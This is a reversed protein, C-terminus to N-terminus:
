QFISNLVPTGGKFDSRCPHRLCISLSCEVRSFWALRSMYGRNLELAVEGYLLNGRIQEKLTQVFHLIRLVLPM